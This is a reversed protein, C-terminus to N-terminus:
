LGVLSLELIRRGMTARSVGFLEVLSHESATKHVALEEAVKKLSMKEPRVGAVHPVLSVLFEDRVSLKPRGFVREFHAEVSVPPMLLEAAFTNAEREPVPQREAGQGERPRRPRVRDPTKEFHSHLVVHGIEHAITFREQAPGRSTDVDLYMVKNTFDCRAFSDDIISSAPGLGHVRELSWGLVDAVLRDVSVPFFEHAELSKGEEEKLLEHLAILQEHATDRITKQPSLKTAM